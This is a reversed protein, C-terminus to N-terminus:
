RSPSPATPARIKRACSRRRRRCAAHCGAAGERASSPVRRRALRRRASSPPARGFAFQGFLHSTFFIAHTRKRTAHLLEPPFGEGGGPCVALSIVTVDADNAAPPAM